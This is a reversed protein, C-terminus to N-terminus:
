SLRKTNKFLFIERNSINVFKTNFWKLAEKKTEYENSYQKWFTNQKIKWCYM